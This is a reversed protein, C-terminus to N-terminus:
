SSLLCTRKCIHKLNSISQLVVQFNGVSSQIGISVPGFQSHEDIVLVGTRGDSGIPSISKYNMTPRTSNSIDKKWGKVVQYDFVAQLVVASSNVPM